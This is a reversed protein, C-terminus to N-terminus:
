LLIKVLGQLLSIIASVAVLTFFENLPLGFFITPEIVFGPVLYTTLWLLIVNLVVSFLGLTVVNVPLFVLKLIPRILSFLITLVISAVALTLWNAFSITPFFWALILLIVATRLLPRLM